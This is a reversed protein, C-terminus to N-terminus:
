RDKADYMNPTMKYEDGIDISNKNQIGIQREHDDKRQQKKEELQEEVGRMFNLKKNVEM